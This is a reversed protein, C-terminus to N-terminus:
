PVPLARVGKGDAIKRKVNSVCVRRPRHYEINGADM